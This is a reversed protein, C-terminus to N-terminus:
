FIYTARLRQWKWTFYHFGYKSEITKQITRNIVFLLYGGEEPDRMHRTQILAHLKATAIACLDFNDNAACSLLIGFALKAMETWEEAPGDQFVLLADLLGLVGDLLQLRSM